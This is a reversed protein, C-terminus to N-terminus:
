QKTRQVLLEVFSDFVKDKWEKSGDRLFYKHELADEAFAEPSLRVGLCRSAIYERLINEGVILHVHSKKSM